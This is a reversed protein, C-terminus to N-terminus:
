IKNINTLIDNLTLKLFKNYISINVDNELSDYSTDTYLKTVRNPTLKVDYKGFGSLPYLLMSFLYLINKLLPIKIIKIKKGSLYVLMESVSMIPKEITLYKKGSDKNSILHIIFKSLNPLYTLSKLVHIDPVFPMIKSLSQMKGINTDSRKDDSFIASPYLIDLPIEHNGCWKKVINEQIFKTTRYADDCNLYKNYTIREGDISAVSSMHIFKKIKINKQSLNRLFNNHNIANANYYDDATKGFDFRASALNIIIYSGDNNIEPINLISSENIDGVNTTNSSEVKDFGIVKYDKKLLPILSSALYGSSGTVIIKLEDNAGAKKITAFNSM